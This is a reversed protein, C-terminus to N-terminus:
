ILMYLPSPPRVKRGAKSSIPRAVSGIEMSVAMEGYREVLFAM